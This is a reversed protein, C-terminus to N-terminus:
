ACFAGNTCRPLGVQQFFLSQPWPLGRLWGAPPCGFAPSWFGTKLVVEGALEELNIGWPKGRATPAM